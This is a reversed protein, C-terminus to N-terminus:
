EQTGTSYQQLFICPNCIIDFRWYHHNTTANLHLNQKVSTHITGHEFSCTLFFNEFQLLKLSFIILPVNIHYKIFYMLFVQPPQSCTKMRFGKHSWGVPQRANSKHYVVEGGPLSCLAPRKILCVRRCCANNIHFTESVLSWSETM